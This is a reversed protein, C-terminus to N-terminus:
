HRLRGTKLGLRLKPNLLLLSSEAECRLRCAESAKTGRGLLGHRSADVRNKRGRQLRLRRTHITRARHSVGRGRGWNRGNGLLLCQGWQLGLLRTWSRRDAKTDFGICGLLKSRLWCTQLGVERLGTLEVDKRTDGTALRHLVWWGTQSKPSANHVYSKRRLV